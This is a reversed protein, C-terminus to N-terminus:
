VRSFSSFLKHALLNLRFIIKLFLLKYRHITNNNTGSMHLRDGMLYVRLGRLYKDFYDDWSLTSMDFDFLIKDRSSLKNMLSNVNHNYYRARMQQYSNLHKAAAHM